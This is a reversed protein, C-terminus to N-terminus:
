WCWWLFCQKGSVSQPSSKQPTIKRIVSRTPALSPTIEPASIAKSPLPTSTQPKKVSHYKQISPAAHKYYTNGNTTIRMSNSWEGPMCGKQGRAKVYYPTDSSLLKIIFQQVGERSLKQMVGHQYVEKSTSYSIYYEDTDSIPTFYLHATTATTDVQFLDPAPLQPETCTPPPSGTNGNNNTSPPASTDTNGTLVCGTTTLGQLASEAQAGYADESKVKFYYRTCASLNHVVVAHSTTFTTDLM